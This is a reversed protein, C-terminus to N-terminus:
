EPNGFHVFVMNQLNCLVTNFSKKCWGQVKGHLSCTGVLTQKGGAVNTKLQICTKSIPVSKTSLNVGPELPHFGM